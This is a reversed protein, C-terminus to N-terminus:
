PRPPLARNRSRRKFLQKVEDTLNPLPRVRVSPGWVPGTVRISMLQRTAGELMDTLVPLRGWADPAINVLDLDVAYGPLQMTGNGVLAVVSGHLVIENFTVTNGAIFFRAQAEDFAGEAPPSLKLSNLIALVMPLQYIRGDVIEFSGGGRRSRTQDLTGSLRLQINARGDINLTKSETKASPGTADTAALFPAVRMSHILTSLSYTAEKEDFLVEAAGTLRGDYIVADIPSFGLRGYGEKARAYQWNASASTVSKGLVDARSLNIRGSLLTGARADIPAGSFTVTGHLDKMELIGPIAVHHIAVDGDVSWRKKGQDDVAYTLENLRLDVTGSPQIADWSARLTPSLMGRFPESLPLDSASLKIRGTEKGADSETQFEIAVDAGAYQANLNTSSSGANNFRVDGFIKTFPVPFMDHEVSAGTLTATADFALTGNNATRLHAKAGIPGTVRWQTLVERLPGPAHERFTEDITLDRANVTVNTTNTEGEKAINGTLSLKGMRYKATIDHFTVSRPDLTVVGAVNTMPISFFDPRISVDNPTVTSTPWARGEADRTIDTVVDVTGRANLRAISERREVPLADLLKEDIPIDDGIIRLALSNPATKDFAVSGNVNVTGGGSQGVVDMLEVRRDAIRLKGNIHVVEYSFHRYTATADRLTVFIESKRSSHDDPPGQERSTTIALDIRGTPAFDERVKRYREGLADFLSDDIPVGSGTITLRAAAGPKTNALWGDVCITGGDRKACLERIWVGDAAFEVAGFVNDGRYPYRYYTTSAGKAVVRAHKIEVLEGAGAHKHAALSIDVLGSPLFKNYFRELQPWGQIFTREGGPAGELRSPLTLNSVTVQADFDVDDLSRWEKVGGTLTISVNCDAGHFAGRFEARVESATVYVTGEVNTFRLYRQDPPIDIEDKRSPISVTANHLDITASRTEHTTGDGILNYDRARVKGGLGLLDRWVSAGDYGANIALMVAEVSMAPLGGRVNRILGTSLDVQSVGSSESANGSQWVIDYLQANKNTPRGRVTLRLSDVTRMQGERLSLVRVRANRLEVTPMTVPSTGRTPLRSFLEGLNTKQSKADHVITCIPDLALLSRIVLKGRLAAMPEHEIRIEDCYFVTRASNPAATSDTTAPLTEMFPDDIAVGHLQVGDWLSFSASKVSVRSGFFGQLYAEAHARVRASNTYRYYLVGVTGVVLTGVTALVLVTKRLRNSQKITTATLSNAKAM